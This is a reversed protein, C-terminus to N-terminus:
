KADFWSVGEHIEAVLPVALQAAGEMEEKLLKGVTEAEEKKVELLLEDHVQLILRSELKETKLRTSTRVMAIKIIDAATGQIPMNMAAREGFGRTAHNSAKLEPIPRRRKYLTEAYGKEKAQAVANEMYEKVKSYKRFYGDIYMQAEPIAIDLDNALGYASIGYIIGFNVAKAAHRQYEQVFEIPTHFVQSATLSHIDVNNHFAEILAPDGSMHALVRLEIQSYDADMFIFGKEPVFVKRLERGLPLRVPINQLNPESSSIRGTTTLTQNFTSHVRSDQPNILPLLGDVYTSKLKTHTRYALIKEIVPHQHKLNELVDAATSYGTKTKKGGKLGLKEFLIIGLQKPSNINFENVGENGVGSLDYIEMTLSDIQKQLNEGYSILAKKDIKIGYGEMERLVSALPLEIEYYLQTQGNEELRKKIEDEGLGNTSENLIYSALDDGPNEGGEVAEEETNLSFRSLMSTFNLRKLHEISDDNWIDGQSAGFDFEVPADVAITVLEKSLLAQEAYTQLNEAAKKPKLVAANAIAVEVSGYAAIIKTATVEGIGPVGPVNDSTDGMLAKVDIYASPSVGFKEQVEAAQYDEVETKGGKTKPIRIKVKDSALQLLDRDGSVIVVDFGFESAKTALSGLVDDAEYSPQSVLRINMAKLLNQLLPIQPKFEPPSPKRTGKYEPFKSHRFTPEPLDFAVAVADPKEEDLFKLFINMFGYVANTYEGQKNTLIPIAYFARYLISHGDILLLKPM